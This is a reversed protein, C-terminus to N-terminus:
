FLPMNLGLGYQLALAMAILGASICVNRLLSYSTGALTSVFVMVTIGAIMNVYMSVVAFLILSAIVISINRFYLPLHVPAVYFSRIVTALGIVLLIGSVGVPFLGPGARSLEGIPYRAGELGFGLAVLVLFVGRALNRNM